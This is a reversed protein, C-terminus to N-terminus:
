KLHFISQYLYSTSFFILKINYQNCIKVLNCTGIININISRNIDKDHISMPRSLSAVHILFDPKIKKINKEISKLSLINLQKKSKFFFSHNSKVKKLEKAFRGNGGTVVIKKVM